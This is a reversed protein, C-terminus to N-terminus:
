CREKAEELLIGTKQCLENLQQKQATNSPMQEIVRSMDNMCTQANQLCNLLEAHDSTNVIKIM